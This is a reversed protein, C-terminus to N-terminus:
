PESPGPPRCLGQVEALGWPHARPLPTAGLLPTAWRPRAQSIRSTPQPHPYKPALHSSSQTPAWATPVRLDDARKPEGAEPRVPEHPLLVAQSM